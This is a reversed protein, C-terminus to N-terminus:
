TKGEMQSITATDWLYPHTPTKNSSGAVPSGDSRTIMKLSTFGETVTDFKPM